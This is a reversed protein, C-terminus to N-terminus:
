AAKLRGGSSVPRSSSTAPTAARSRAPVARAARSATTSRASTASRAATDHADVDSGHLGALRFRASVCWNNMDTQLNLKTCIGNLLYYGPNCSKLACQGNNCTSQGNTSPCINGISGSHAHGFGFTLLLDRSFSPREACWNNPDNTVDLCAQASPHWMCGTNCSQAQCVGNVCTSGIGNPFSSPCKNGVSGSRTSRILEKRETDVRLVSRM